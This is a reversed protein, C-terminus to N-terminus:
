LAALLMVLAGLLAGRWFAWVPCRSSLPLTLGWALDRAREALRALVPTKTPCRLKTTM